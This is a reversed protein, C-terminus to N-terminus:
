KQKRGHHLRSLIKEVRLHREFKRGLHEIRLRGLHGICDGVAVVHIALMEFKAHFAALHTGRNKWGALNFKIFGKLFVNLGIMM